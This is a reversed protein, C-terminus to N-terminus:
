GASRPSRIRLGLGTEISVSGSRGIVTGIMCSYM